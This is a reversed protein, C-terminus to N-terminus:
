ELYKSNKDFTTVLEEREDLWEDTMAADTLDHKTSTFPLMSGFPYVEQLYFLNRESKHSDVNTEASSHLTEDLIQELAQYNVNLGCTEEPDRITAITHSLGHPYRGSCSYEPHALRAIKWVKGHITTENM